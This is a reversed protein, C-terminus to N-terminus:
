EVGLKKSEFATGVGHSITAKTGAAAGSLLAVSDYKLKSARPKANSEGWVKDAQETDKHRTSMAEIKSTLSIAMGLGFSRRSKADIGQSIAAMFDKGNHSALLRQETMTVEQKALELITAQIRRAREFKWGADILNKVTDFLYIAIEIDAKVGAVKLWGTMEQTIKREKPNYIKRRKTSMGIRTGTLNSIAVICQCAPHAMGEHAHAGVRQVEVIEIGATEVDSDSLDHEKMMRAAAALFAEAEADTAAADEGKSRLKKIRELLKNRDPDTANM